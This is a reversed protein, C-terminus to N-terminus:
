LTKEKKECLNRRGKLEWQGPIFFKCFVVM